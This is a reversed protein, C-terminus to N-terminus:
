PHASPWNFGFHQPNRGILIAAFVRPVFERTERPLARARYLYWFSRQNIPDRVNRSVARKVTTTGSNYAALALMVSSGAGFDLILDRLYKCTAETSKVLDKREDVQGDVRLGYTKATAVTFQWPGVAGAASAQRTELGSEVVPIYALDAPLQEKQLIRRITQLQAGSQGLARALIPRDSGLDQEIYHNVRDIFDSPISYVEAGFEAMVSRLERTVFDGEDQASSLRYLLSRQLSEGEKSYDSLQSLLNGTDMGEGAKQLEADIQRIHTDIASKERRLATIKWISISAVALLAALLSYGIIRFRRHTQQLAQDILGRMITMTQGGVGHRRMRRARTVASSVLKEYASAAPAGAAPIQAASPSVEITRDLRAPQAEELVFAFEPGQRGLRIIAPASIQADTIRQDNLWTGNTSALDRVHYTGDDNRIEVHHLSVTSSDSGDVVVDNDPARGIRTTGEPMPFRTGAMQGSRSLLCANARSTAILQQSM